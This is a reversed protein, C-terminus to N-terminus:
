PYKSLLSDEPSNEREDSECGSSILGCTDLVTSWILVPRSPLAESLADCSLRIGRRAAGGGVLASGLVAEGGM